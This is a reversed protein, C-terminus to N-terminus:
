REKLAEFYRKVFPRADPPVEDQELSEEADKVASDVAEKFEAKSDNERPVGKFRISRGMNGKPDLKGSVKSPDDPRGDDPGKNVNGGEGRGENPGAQGGAGRQLRQIMSRLQAELREREEASMGQGEGEGEGKGNGAMRGKAGELLEALEELSEAQQLADLIQQLQEESLGGLANAAQELDEPKLQGGGPSDCKECTGELRELQENIKKLLERQQDTMQELQKKLAPNEELRKQLEELAKQAEKARKILEELKKRDLEPERGEKRAAEAEDKLAKEFKELDGDLGTPNIRDLEKALESLPDEATQKGFKMGDENGLLAAREMRAQDALKSFEAMADRLSTPQQQMQEMKKRADMATRRLAEMKRLEAAQQLKALDAETKRAAERTKQAEATKEEDTKPEQGVVDPVLSPVQLGAFAGIMLMLASAALWAFGPLPLAKRVSEPKLRATAEEAQSNLAAALEAPLESGRFAVATSAAERLQGARDVAVAASLLAPKHMVYAALFVPIPAAAVFLALWAPEVVPWLRLIVMFALASPVAVFAVAVAKRLAFALRMRRITWNLLDEM